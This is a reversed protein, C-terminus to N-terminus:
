ASAGKKLLITGFPNIIKGDLWELLKYKAVNNDEDNWTSTRLPLASNIAYDSLKTYIAFVGGTKASAFDGIADDVTIVPIGMFRMTEEGDIGYNVRAVPQGNNDVMGDIFEDFTAQNMILSGGRYRKKILKKFKSHWAAWTKMDAEALTASTKVRSDVTIGTPQGSGTGNLIADDLLAARADAALEVFKRQFAPLTVAQTLFSEALKVEMGYYSFVLKGDPELKQDDSTKSETIWSATPRMSMTPIEIGGPYSTKSVGAYIVGHEETEQIIKDQLNTPVVNGQVATGVVATMQNVRAQYRPDNVIESPMSRHEVVFAAFARNYEDSSFIDERDNVPAVTHTTTSDITKGAGASVVSLKANRTEVVLNRRETDQKIMRVEEKLDDMTLEGNGDFNEIAKTVESKRQEFADADLARYQEISFKKM